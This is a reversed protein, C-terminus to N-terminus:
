VELDVVFPVEIQGIKRAAETRKAGQGGRPVWLTVGKAPVTLGGAFVVTGSGPLVARLGETEAPLSKVDDGQVVDPQQFEM